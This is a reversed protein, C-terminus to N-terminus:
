ATRGCRRCTFRGNDYTAEVWGCSPCQFRVPPFGYPPPHYTPAYERPILSPDRVTAAQQPPTQWPTPPSAPYPPYGSLGYGLPPSPPAGPQTPGPPPPPGYMTPPPITGPGAITPQRVVHGTFRHWLDQAQGRAYLLYWVFFGSGAIALGLFLLGILIALPDGGVGEWSLTSVYDTAFHAIIAAGIGHRLFLYGFGLGAVMAPVVKWWGWGPAHALGFVTSSAFLLVWAALLSERSSTKRLNGGPLYRLSRKFSTGGPTWRRAMGANFALSGIALPVGILLARFVLEEYVSANALEFLLVWTNGTTPSIPSSPPPGIAELLLIIAVQVFTVALWTQAIAVWTSMSRLRAGIRDFPAFFTSLFLKRERITTYLCALTIAAVLFGYYGLFLVPDQSEFLVTPFPLPLYFFVAADTIWALRVNDVGVTTTGVNPDALFAIKLYYTGPLPVRDSLDVEPAAKWAMTSANYWNVTTASAYDPTGSSSDLAAVLRGAMASSGSTTVLADFRLRVAYPTSGTFALTQTWMGGAKTGPPLTMQLYGGPNGGSAAYGGSAFPSLAVFTWGSSDATFNTNANKGSAIGQAGPLVLSPGVFLGALDMALLIVFGVVAITWLVSLLSRGATSRAPVYRMMSAPLGCRPCFNGM